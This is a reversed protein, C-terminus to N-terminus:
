QVDTLKARAAVLAAKHVRVFARYQVTFNQATVPIDPNSETFLPNLLVDLCSAPQPPQVQLYLPSTLWNSLLPEASRSELQLTTALSQIVLKESLERKLHPLLERLVLKFRDGPVASQDFLAPIDVGFPHQPDGVSLFVDAAASDLPPPTAAQDYLADIAKLY